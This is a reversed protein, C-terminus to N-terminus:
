GLKILEYWLLGLNAFSYGAWMLSHSYDGQIFCSISNIMYLSTSIVISIIIVSM